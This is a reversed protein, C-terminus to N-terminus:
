AAKNRKQQKVTVGEVLIEVKRAPARLWKKLQQSLETDTCRVRMGSHFNAYTLKPQAIVVGDRGSRLWELPSKHVALADGAFYTSPCFVRDVDGICFGAGRWTALQGTTPQWAVLDIAEGRDDSRFIVARVGDPDFDFVGGRDFRVTAGRIAPTAMVDGDVGQRLLWKLENDSPFPLARYFAQLSGHPESDTKTQFAKL